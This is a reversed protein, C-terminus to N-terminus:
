NAPTKVKRRNQFAKRKNEARASAEKNLLEIAQENAIENNKKCFADFSKISPYKFFDAIEFKRQYKESLINRVQILQFSTGGLSFFSDHVGISDINLVEKWIDMLQQEDENEAPTLVKFSKKNFQIVPLAKRDIKENDTLPLKALCEFWSPVMFTPLLNVLYQRMVTQIDEMQSSVVIYAILYKELNKQPVLTVVAEAINPHNQLASEIEGLEIRFGNLKVQFDSRGHYRLVGDSQYSAIDGTHYMRTNAIFPNNVFRKRTNDEDKYYGHALGHGAIYLEGQVGPPVPNLYEDLIYVQTNGIPSGIAITAQRCDEASVKKATSWVTTETPGYVNFLSQCLPLLQKALDSTLAEGGCLLKLGSNGKWNSNILMKWTAPTAQLTTIGYSDLLGILKETQTREDETAVVVTAGRILPLYIELASIDFSITTVALFNDEASFNLLDNMSWLLNSLAIHPIQVGKPKGTSGSTYITYVSSTSEVEESEFDQPANDINTLDITCAIASAAASLGHQTLIFEIGASDAIQALKHDPYAPDMPLYAAGTKMIGLLAPIMNENREICVGVLDGSKVGKQQLTFAIDNAKNNLQEYTLVIKSTGGSASAAVVAAKEPTLACQAEFHKHVGQSNPYSKETNNWSQLMTSLGSETLMQASFCPQNMSNSLADMLQTFNDAMNQVTNPIFLDTNYEFEGHLEQNDEVLSLTLDYKTSSHENLEAHEMKLGTLDLSDISTNKLIFMIQFIPSYSLNREPQLSEVVQEFPAEKNAFADLVTTHVTKILSQFNVSDALQVRLALTNVFLGILQELDSDDRNVVPTGIVLDKTNSYRSLLVSFGALLVVFLTTQNEKAIQQLRSTLSSSLKFGHVKGKFQQIAPRRFDTTLELLQPADSLRSQWYELQPALAGSEFKQKQVRSYNAYQLPLPPLSQEIGRRLIEYHTKLEKAFISFSWGDTVLHHKKYFLLHETPTMRFLLMKILPPCTLDFPKKVEESLRQKIIAAHDKERSNSIDVVPIDFQIDEHIKQVARGDIEHFSTRLIHHRQIINRLSKQLLLHDLFGYIKFTGQLHYTSSPGEFQELFWLREQAFSLPAVSDAGAQTPVTSSLHKLLEAKRRKLVNVVEATLLSKEAKVNLEGKESWIEIGRNTLDSLLEKIGITQM